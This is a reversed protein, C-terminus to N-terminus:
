EGIYKGYVREINSYGLSECLSDFPQMTKMSLTLVKVGREQLDKEAYKFMNIAIRGKRYDKILYLMDNMAHLTDKYHLHTTVLSIFYGVLKEGDRTTVVHLLGNEDLIAYKDYDPNLNLKDQYHGTEEWNADFIESLEMVIDSWKEVQYTIM